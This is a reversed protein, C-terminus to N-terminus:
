DLETQPSIVGNEFNTPMNAVLNSMIWLTGGVIVAVIFLAVAFMVPDSKGRGRGLHFFLVIQAAFQLLALTIFAPYLFVHSPYEHLSTIHMFALGAAALTFLLSLGYGLLYRSLTM